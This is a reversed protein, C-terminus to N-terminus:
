QGAAHSQSFQKVLATTEKIQAELDIFQEGSGPDSVKLDGRVTIANNRHKLLADLLVKAVATNHVSLLIM